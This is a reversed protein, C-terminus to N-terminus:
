PSSWTEGSPQVAVVLTAKSVDIGIVTRAEMVDSGPM